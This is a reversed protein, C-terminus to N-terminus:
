IECCLIIMYYLYRPQIVKVHDNGVSKHLWM